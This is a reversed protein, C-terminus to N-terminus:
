ETDREDQLKRLDRERKWDLVEWEFPKRNRQYEDMSWKIDETTITVVEVNHTDYYMVEILYTKKNEMIKEKIIKNFYLM